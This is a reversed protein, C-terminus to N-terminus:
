NKEKHENFFAELWVEKPALSLLVPDELNELKYKAIDFATYPSDPIPTDLMLVWREKDTKNWAEHLMGDNFALFQGEKWKKQENNTKFAIDGEPVKLALHSRMVQKSYGEHPRVITHPQLISFEAGLLEPVAQLLAVTKPFSAYFIPHKLTFFLLPITKWGGNNSFHSYSSNLDSKTTRLFSELEDRIVKYNAALDVMWTNNTPIFL